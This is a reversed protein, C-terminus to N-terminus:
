IGLSSLAGGVQTSPSAQSNSTIPNYQTTSASKQALPSYGKLISQIVDLQQLPYNKQNQFDQQALDLNAQNTKDQAAGASTMMNYQNQTGTQFNGMADKYATELATAQNGLITNQNDRIARNTFMGERMSFPQGAETFNDQVKPLVNEFLNQNGLEAIRDTVGSTYPSLYKSFNAPDSYASAGFNQASQTTQSPEAIRPGQYAQYPESAIDNAKLLTAKWADQYWAPLNTETTSPSMITEPPKDSFLFDLTSM